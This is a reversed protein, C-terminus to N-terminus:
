AYREYQGRPWTRVSSLRSDDIRTRGKKRKPPLSTPKVYDPARKPKEATVRASITFFREGDVRHELVSDPEWEPLVSYPGWIM